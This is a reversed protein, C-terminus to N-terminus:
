FSYGVPGVMEVRVGGDSLTEVGGFATIQRIGSGDPRMTFLQEGSPNRGLPDCSSIFLVAGTIANAAIGDVHCSADAAVMRCGRKPRGDDPFRTLQHLGSGLPSISFLQCLGEPNTGLPDASTTFYVRHSGIANVFGTDPYGFRTLQLAHTGDVIFLEHAIDDPV